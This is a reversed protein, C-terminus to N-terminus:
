ASYPSPQLARPQIAAQPQQRQAQVQRAHEQIAVARVVVTLAVLFWYPEMIRGILFSITGLSHVSLGITAATTGLALGRGVWDRSWRFAQRCTMILRIQLFLFAALGFLGTEMIVRAYQSDLVTEWAVGGGFFPAVQLLFGVKRWVYVREYTSKDVQIGTDKGNVVIPEGSGQQFTYNVREIVEKPMLLPGAVVTLIVVAVIAYRRGLTGITLFAVILAVYSARSLTYLFPFFAAGTLILFLLKRRPTQARTFLGMSICMSLMLYGGLTNPESGQAEFPTGVRAVSGVTWACFGCVLMLVVFYLRLQKRIDKLDRMATGILFFVMYFEAMKMMVFFASKRDWAPLNARLALLTSIICVSYYAVIGANIPCSRWFAAQGEFAQKVLVGMFIVIILIDSYRVNLEHEGSMESGFTVEPSLLMAIVLVAVGIDVRVLTVGFLLMSIALAATITDNRVMTHVVLLVVASFLMFAVFFPFEVRSEATEGRGIGQPSRFFGM